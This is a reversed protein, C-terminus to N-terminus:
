TQLEMGERCISEDTDNKELYVKYDINGDEFFNVTQPLSYMLYFGLFLCSLIATISFVALKKMVIKKNLIKSRLILKNKVKIM